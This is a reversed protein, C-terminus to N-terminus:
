QCGQVVVDDIYWGEDGAAGDSAFRYRFQVTQGALATIDVVSIVEQDGSLPVIDDACWALQGSIANVGPQITVNGNYPDTLLVSDSIQTFSNGGDTSVELLGGDFCADAGFGANAEINQFNWYTLTLPAQAASPITIPPSVLLQDSSTAPDVALFSFMGSNQRVTSLAWLEPGVGSSPMTWGPAGSELDDQFVINPTTGAPCVGPPITTFSASAIAGDGCNNVGRVRWFLTVGSDFAEAAVFTTDATEGTAIINTFGADTAIEIRYSVAGAVAGWSFTPRVSTEGADAPGTLVPAAVAASSTTIDFDLSRTLAGSVADINFTFGGDGQSSLGNITFGTSGPFDSITANDFAVSVGPPLGVASLTVPDTFGLSQVNINAQPADNLTCSNVQRNFDSSVFFNPNGCNPFSFSCVRNEWDATDTNTIYEVSLWFTCQDSPDISMSSYDGWRGARGTADVFTQVGSGVVCSQEDLLLGPPEEATRGTYRVSPFTTASSVTYGLGINRSQDISIGAMWRFDSDPSYLGQDLIRPQGNPLPESTEFGGVFVDDGTALAIDVWRVGSVGGGANSAHNLVLETPLGTEAPYARASVRYMTNGTFNDLESGPPAPPPQPVNDVANDFVANAPLVAPGTLTSNATNDWDVCLEWILYSDLDARNHAFPACTGAPPLETSELHASLAGFSSTGAFGTNTFRVIDVMGAPEGALMGDRDVVSFSAQLFNFGGAGDPMFDHTTLYYGSRAGSADTWVSIHPYDNFDPSFDFEYRNYPGNPDGTTTVAFCQRNTGSGTFQSFLWRGALKDYLVIPDGSNSTECPGGFGAWFTNGEIVGPAVINGTAKDIIVWDTNIYQIYFNPGVDGNTDPPLGGGAADSQGIGDVSIGLPPASGLGGARQAGEAAAGVFTKDLTTASNGEEDFNPFVFDPSAPPQIDTTQNAAAIQLLEALPPSVDHRVAQMVKQPTTSPPPAALSLGCYGIAVIVLALQRMNLNHM